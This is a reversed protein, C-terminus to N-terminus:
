MKETSFVTFCDLNCLQIPYLKAGITVFMVRSKIHNYEHPTLEKLSKVGWVKAGEEYYAVTITLCVIVILCIIITILGKYNYM